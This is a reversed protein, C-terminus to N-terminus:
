RHGVSMRRPGQLPLYARPTAVDHPPRCMSVVPQRVEEKVHQQPQGAAAQQPAVRLRRAHVRAVVDDYAPAFLLLHVQFTINSGVVAATVRASSLDEAALRVVQLRASLPALV